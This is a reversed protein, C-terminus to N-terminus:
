CFSIVKKKNSRWQEDNYYWVLTVEKIEQSLVMENQSLQRSNKQSNLKKRDSKM